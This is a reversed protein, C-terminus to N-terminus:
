QGYGGGGFGNHQMHQQQQYLAVAETEMRAMEAMMEPEFFKTVSVDESLGKRRRTKIMFDRALQDPGAAELPYLTMNRDLPNGSVQM